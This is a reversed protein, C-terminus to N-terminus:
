LERREEKKNSGRTVIFNRSAGCVANGGGGGGGQKAVTCQWQCVNSAVDKKKFAEEEYVIKFNSSEVYM